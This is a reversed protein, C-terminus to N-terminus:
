DEYQSGFEKYRYCSKEDNENMKATDRRKCFRRAADTRLHPSRLIQNSGLSTFSIDSALERLFTAL